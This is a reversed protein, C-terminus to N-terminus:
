DPTTPLIMEKKGQSAGDSLELPAVAIVTFGATQWQTNQGNADSAQVELRYAGPSLRNLMVGRGLAIVPNGAQSYKTTDVPEFTDAVAGSKANLIRMNAMVKVGPRGAVIPDNIEFYVFLTDDRFFDTSAAPTFELERSVLPKYSEAVREAGETSNQALRRVRHAIVVGGVSLKDPDYGVVTLPAEQIGFHVGDSIVARVVYKGPALSFQMEYRNPLLARDGTSPTQTKEDHPAPTPAGSANETGRSEEKEGYDCCAFDSYRTALSGDERYVLVLSGITAYVTGDRFEHKLSERPFSTAVYVRAGDPEDAFVATNLKLDIGSSTRANAAKEMADRFATGNLPDSAPHPTNCYESRTWVLTNAREVKVQIQHCSGVESKPPVYALVYEPWALWMSLDATPLDPYAWVGGGTGVIEPHKGLNDQVVRFAPPEFNVSEIRQEQGDEFLHFDKVSLNRVAIDDWLKANKAILHAYSDRHHPQQKGLKAYVEKDLVVTPVLVEDSQVRIPDQAAARTALFTVAVCVGLFSTWSLRHAVM